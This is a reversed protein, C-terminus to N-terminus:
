DKIDHLGSVNARDSSFTPADSRFTGTQALVRIKAPQGPVCRRPVDLFVKDRAPRREASLPDCSKFDDYNTASGLFAYASKGDSTFGVQGYWDDDSNAAPTLTFSFMQDFRKSRVIDKITVIFRVRDGVERVEVKRVDISVRNSRSLGKRETLRVDNYADEDSVKEAAYAPPVGFGLTVAFALLIM